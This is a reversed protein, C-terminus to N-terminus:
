QDAPERATPGPLSAEFGTLLATFAQPAEQHPSHGAGPVLQVEGRWLTPLTPALARLYRLSVLQDESGHLIALPRRLGRAIAIEDAFSGTALAASLDTRAAPDTALIDAVAEPAPQAGPALQAAAYARAEDPGVEGSLATGLSPHPRFRGAMAGPGSKLPAGFVAFAAAGPLEPAAQIVIHGGLSMGVILAGEAHTDRVFDALARTYLTFSYRDGARPSAGHGPLDPALCRFRRGFPGQLLPLWTRSSSSNGHVLVVPRGEGASERYALQPANM